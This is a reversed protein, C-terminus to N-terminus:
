RRDADGAPDDRHAAPPLHGPPASLQPPGLAAAVAAWGALGGAVAGDDLWGRQPPGPRGLHGAPGTGGAAARTAYGGLRVRGRRGDPAASLEFALYWRGHGRERLYPGRQGLQRGTRQDRCGCRKFTSGGSRSMGTRGREAVAIASAVVRHAQGARCALPLSPVCTGALPGIRGAALWPEAAVSGSCEWPTSMVRM